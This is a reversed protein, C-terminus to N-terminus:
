AGGEEREQMLTDLVQLVERMFADLVRYLEKEQETKPLPLQFSQRISSM